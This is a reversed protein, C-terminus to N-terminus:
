VPKSSLKKSKGGCGCDAECGSKKSFSRARRYVARGAFFAAVVLILLVSILQIDM